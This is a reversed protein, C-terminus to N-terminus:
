GHRYEQFYCARCINRRAQPLTLHISGVRRKPFRHLFSCSGPHDLILNSCPEGRSFCTGRLRDDIIRISTCECRVPRSQSQFLSFGDQIAKLGDKPKTQYKVYCIAPVLCSRFVTATMLIDLRRRMMSFVETSPETMARWYIYPNKQETCVM